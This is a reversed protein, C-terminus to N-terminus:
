NNNTCQNQEAWLAVEDTQRKMGKNDCDGGQFLKSDNGDVTADRWSVNEM